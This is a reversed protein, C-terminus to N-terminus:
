GRKNLLYKAYLLPTEYTKYFSDDMKLQKFEYRQDRGNAEIFWIHGTLDVGIDLGIDAMHPLRNGLTEALKLSLQEVAEKMRQPQFGSRQFLLECAWAEGGIGLNTVQRGKAAVKGAIGNVQWKGKAGRQVSVRLDYPRGQHMALIIAQQILYTQKGVKTQIFALAQERSLEKPEKNSWYVEWTDYELKSLKIIGKGLSSSTPKVFFDTFREMAELVHARSYALTAPLHAQLSEKTYLLKHILLKDYRNQRNFVHSSAALHKLKKLMYPSLSLARNHIVKPYSLRLLRYSKNEYCLGLASKGSTEQLCIYFLTIGLKEAAQNYLDIQEYGTQKSQIGLYTKRDLLIGVINRM